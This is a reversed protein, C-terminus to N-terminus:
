DCTVPDVTANDSFLDSAPECLAQPPIQANAFQVERWTPKSDRVFCSESGDENVASIGLAFDDGYGEVYTFEKAVIIGDDLTLLTRPGDDKEQTNM